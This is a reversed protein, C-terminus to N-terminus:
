MLLFCGRGNDKAQYLKEDARQVMHKFLKDTKDFQVAGLSFTVPYDSPLTPIDIHTLEAQIRNFIDEISSVMLVVGAIDGNTIIPVGLYVVKEDDELQYLDHTSEGRIAGAVQELSSLDRGEFDDYSDILVFGDVNIVLIRSKLEISQKKISKEVLKKYEQKSLSSVEGELQGAIINGQTFLSIQKDEIFNIKITENIFAIM